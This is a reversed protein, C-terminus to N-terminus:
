DNPNEMKSQVSLELSGDILTAKIMDGTQVENVGMVRRGDSTSLCVFGRKLIARPDYAQVLNLFGDLREVERQCQHTVLDDLAKGAQNLQNQERDLIAASAMDITNVLADLNGNAVNVQLNVTNELTEALTRCEKERLQQANMANQQFYIRCANLASDANALGRQASLVFDRSAGTLSQQFGSLTRECVKEFARQANEIQERLESALKVLKEAAATPTMASECMEDLVSLATDRNHGVGIVFKVHSRAIAEAINYNNFYALDTLSGGGRIILAFDFREEGIERMTQMASLFTSEVDKGQLRVRFLSLEFPFSSNRLTNVFDDYGAAGENSFLALRFPSDPMPLARNLDFLGNRRLQEIILGKQRFFEDEGYHLDFELVHLNIQTKPGYFAVECRACVKDGMKPMPVNAEAFDRVIKDWQNSWIVASIECKQQGHETELLKFYHHGREAKIKDLSMEGVDANKRVDALAGVVWIQSRGYVNKVADGLKASIASLTMPNERSGALVGAVNVSKKAVFAVDASASVAHDVCVNPQGDPRIASKEHLQYGFAHIFGENQRMSEKSIILYESNNIMVVEAKLTKILVPDNRYTLVWADRSKNYFYYSQIQATDPM